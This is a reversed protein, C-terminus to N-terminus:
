FRDIKLKISKTNKKMFINIEINMETGELRPGQLSVDPWMSRM